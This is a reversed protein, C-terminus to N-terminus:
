VIRKAAVFVYGHKQEPAYEAHGSLILVNSHRERLARVGDAISDSAFLTGIHGNIRVRRYNHYRFDDRTILDWESLKRAGTPLTVNPINLSQLRKRM